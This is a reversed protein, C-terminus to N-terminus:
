KKGTCCGKIIFYVGKFILYFIKLFSANLEFPLNMMPPIRVKEEKVEGEKNKQGENKSKKKKDPNFTNYNMVEYIAFSIVGFILVLTSQDEYIKTGLFIALIIGGISTCMIWFSSPSDKSLSCFILVVISGADFVILMNVFIEFSIIEGGILFICLDLGLLIVYLLYIFIPSSLCTIKTVLLSLALVLGIGVGFIVWYLAMYDEDFVTGKSKQIAHIVYEAITLVGTHFLLVSFMRIALTKNILKPKRKKSSSSSSKINAKSNDDNQNESPKENEGGEKKPEIEFLKKKRSYFYENNAFIKIVMELGSGAYFDIFQQSCKEVMLGREDTEVFIDCPLCNIISYECTILVTRIEGIQKKMKMLLIKRNPLHIYKRYRQHAETTM